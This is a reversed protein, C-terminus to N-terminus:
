QQNIIDNININQELDWYARINFVQNYNFVREPLLTKSIDGNDWIGNNNSDEIIKVKLEVPNLYDLKLQTSNTIKFERVVENSNKNILQLIYIKNNPTFSVNLILNGYEKNQKMVVTSQNNKNFSGYVDVIASDKIKISYNTGEKWNHFLNLEMKNPDNINLWLPKIKITDEKFEISDINIKQYPNSLKIKFTDSPTLETKTLITFEPIPSKAKNKLKVTYSTDPTNIIFICSDLQNTFVKITDVNNSGNIVKKYLFNSLSSSVNFNTPKYVVFSYVGKATSLTDLMKNIKYSNPKFIYLDTNAPKTSSVITSKAIAVSDNLAYKIDTGEKKYAYIKYEDAPMNEIKFTGDAKTKTFYVPNTKYITTDTFTTAQYLAVIVDAQVTNTFANKVIGSVYNSDIYNGTSFTYTLNQSISSEHNDTVANGFNITYTTFPKLPEKFKVTIEKGSIEYAPSINPPPSMVIQRAPEKLQIFEDFKIKIIQQNTPFNVTKNKPEMALVKPGIEDKPGGTPAVIQACSFIFLLLFPTIKLYLKM